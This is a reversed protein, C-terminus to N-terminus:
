RAAVAPGGAVVIACAGILLQLGLSATDSALPYLCLAHQACLLQSPNPCCCFLLLRLEGAAPWSSHGMGEVQQEVTCQTDPQGASRSVCSRCYGEKHGRRRTQTECSVWAYDRDYKPQIRAREQETWGQRVLNADVPTKHITKTLNQRKQTVFDRCLTEALACSEILHARPPLPCELPV